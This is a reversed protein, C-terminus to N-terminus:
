ADATARAPGLARRQKRARLSEITAFLREGRDEWRFAGEAAAQAGEQMAQLAPIDDVLAAVGALLGDLTPSLLMHRRVSEPLGAACDTLAAVPVGNFVYELLKMKFGGGIPEAVVALRAASLHPEPDEVFGTFAAAPYRAALDRRLGESMDGVVQIGIGARGLLPDAADLFLRLNAEKASWRYSGFLVVGRPLAPTLVRQRRPGDYGPVLPLIRAQPADARFLAADAETITTVLDSRRAIWREFRRTKLWNQGLYLRKSLRASRDHWQQRTVSAEHDHTVFVVVPDDALLGPEDLAWGMGYQDVIVADWPGEAALRGLLARYAPTHHRAAVLPMASALARMRGRPRGPVVRWDIGPVAQPPAEGAFGTMVVRAQAAALAGALRASYIRDGATLPFPMGRAIWLCRMM